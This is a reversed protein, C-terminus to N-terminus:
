RLIDRIALLALDKKKAEIELDFHTIPLKNVYDSHAPDLQKARGESYHQLPDNNPWTSAALSEDDVPSGPNLLAHHHDFTIPTNPFCEKLKLVTWCGSQENEFVLRNLVNVPLKNFSDFVNNQTIESPKTGNSVHINIPCDYNNPLGLMDLLKGHYILNNISNNRTIPSASGISVFQSPHITLRGGMGLYTRLADKANNVASHNTNAILSDFLHKFQDHDALPILDSSIRYLWVNNQINWNTIDALLNLNHTIIENWKKEAATIDALSRGLQMIRFNRMMSLNQCCYGLRNM